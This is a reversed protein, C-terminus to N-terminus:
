VLGHSQVSLLRVVDNLRNSLKIGDGFWEIVPAAGEEKNVTLEHVFGNGAEITLKLYLRETQTTKPVALKAKIAEQLEEVSAESITKNETTM